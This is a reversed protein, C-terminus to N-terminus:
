NINRGVIYLPDNKGSCKDAIKKYYPMIIPILLVKLTTKTQMERIYLITSCKTMYKYPM